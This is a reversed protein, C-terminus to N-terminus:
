GLRQAVEGDTLEREASLENYARAMKRIKEGMHVPLRITRGKDM